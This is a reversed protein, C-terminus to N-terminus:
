KKPRDTDVPKGRRESEQGKKDGQPKPTKSPQKPIQKNSNSAM